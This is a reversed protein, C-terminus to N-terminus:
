PKRGFVVVLLIYAHVGSQGMENRLQAPFLTTKEMSWGLVEIAPRLVFGELDEDLAARTYRGVEKYQPDKPWLGVPMKYVHTKVDAFGASRMAKSLTGDEAVKFSRNLENGVKVWFDRWQKMVNCGELTGDDSMFRMSIEHCEFYGDCKSADFAQKAFDYWDTISGTMRRAHIFEFRERFTWELNVDDIQFELNAPVWAPQIPSIDVGIVEASPHEDAFQIAWIGTGTGVDLVNQVGEKIPSVYLKDDLVRLEAAHDFHQSDLSLTSEGDSDDTYDSAAPVVSGEDRGDDSDPAASSPPAMGQGLMSNPANSMTYIQERKIGPGNGDSRDCPLLSDSTSNPLAKSSSCSRPENRMDVAREPDSSFETDLALNSTPVPNSRSLISEADGSAETLEAVM